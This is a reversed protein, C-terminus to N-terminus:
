FRVKVLGRLRSASFQEGNSLSSAIQGDYEYSYEHDARYAQQSGAAIALLAAFLALGKAFM